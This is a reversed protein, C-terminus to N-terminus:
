RRRIAAVHIVFAEDRFPSPIYGLVESRPFVSHHLDFAVCRRRFFVAALYETAVERSVHALV